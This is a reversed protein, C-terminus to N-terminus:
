AGSPAASSIRGQPNLVTHITKELKEVMEFVHSENVIFPPALMVHDGRKGDVIGGMPYCILGNEMAVDKVRANVKLAADFPEKTERDAVFEMAMFLGRGRIDGVHPHNGFTESLAGRLLEGMKRVNEILNNDRIEQQVAIGAACATAHGMFTHGHMVVNSGNEIARHVKDGILLAGLPQYGASVGKAVAIFDPAVGEQDAAWRAGTRGMGCM